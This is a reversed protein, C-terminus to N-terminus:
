NRTVLSIWARAFGRIASNGLERADAPLDSIRDFAKQAMGPLTVAEEKTLNGKSVLTAVIASLICNNAAANGRADAIDNLMGEEDM